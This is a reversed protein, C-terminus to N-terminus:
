VKKLLNERMWWERYPLKSYKNINKIFNKNSILDLLRQAFQLMGKYGYFEFEDEIWLTPIGMKATWARLSYHKVIVLDPKMHGIFNILIYAQNFSIKVGQLGYLNGSLEKKLFPMDSNDFIMKYKSDYDMINIDLDKLMVLISKEYGYGMIIPLCKIYNLKIKIEKLKEMYRNKDNSIINHVSFKEKFWIDIEDFFNDTAEIGYPLTKNICPINFEDKLWESIYKSFRDPSILLTGSAGSMKELCEYETYCTICNWNVPIKDLIEKIDDNGTFNIVNYFKECINNNKILKNLNKSQGLKAGSSWFGSNYLECTIIILPISYEDQISNIVNQIDLATIGSGCSSTIFIVKPNFSEISRDIANKLKKDVDFIVDSETINSSVLKANKIPLGRKKLGIKFKINFDIFSSACGLPSHIIVVSNRITSLVNSIIPSQCDACQMFSLNKCNESNLKEKDECMDNDIREFYM